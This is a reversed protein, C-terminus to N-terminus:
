AAELPRAERSREERVIDFCELYEKTGGHQRWVTFVANPDIGEARARGDTLLRVIEPPDTAGCAKGTSRARDPGTASAGGNGRSMAERARIDADGTAIGIVYAWLDKICTGNAIQKAARNVLEQVDARRRDLEQRVRDPVRLQRGEVTVVPPTRYKVARANNDALETILAKAAAAWNEKSLGAPSEAQEALQQNTSVTGSARDIGGSEYINGAFGRISARNKNFSQDQQIGIKITHDTKKGNTKKGDPNKGIADGGRSDRAGPKRNTEIVKGGRTSADADVYLPARETGINAILGALKLTHLVANATPKTVGVREEIQWRTAGLAGRARLYLACVIETPTFDGCFLARDVKVFDRQPTEFTLRDVAYGRGRGKNRKGQERHFLGQKQLERSTCLFSKRYFGSRVTQQITRHNCGWSDANFLSRYALLFTQNVTLSKDLVMAKPLRGFGGAKARTKPTPADELGSEAATAPTREHEDIHRGSREEVNGFAGNKKVALGSNRYPSM